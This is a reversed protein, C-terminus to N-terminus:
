TEVFRQDPLGLRGARVTPLVPLDRGTAATADIRRRDPSLETVSALKTVSVMAPAVTAPAVMASARM